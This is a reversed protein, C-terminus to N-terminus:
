RGPRNPWMWRKRKEHGLEAYQPRRPRQKESVESPTLVRIVADRSVGTATVIQDVTRGQCSMQQIRVIDANALPADEFEREAKRESYPLGISADRHGGQYFRNM